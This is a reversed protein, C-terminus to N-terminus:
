KLFMGFGAVSLVMKANTTWGEPMAKIGDTFDVTQYYAETMGRQLVDLAYREAGELPSWNATFGSATVESAAHATPRTYAFSLAPTTISVMAKPVADKRRAPLLGSSIFQMNARAPMAQAVILTFEKGM